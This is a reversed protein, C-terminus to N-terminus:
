GGYKVILSPIAIPEAPFKAVNESQRARGFSGRMGIKVHQVAESIPVSRFHLREKTASCAAIREQVEYASEDPVSSRRRPQAEKLWGFDPPAAQTERMPM